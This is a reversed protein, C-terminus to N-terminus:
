PSGCLSPKDRGTLPTGISGKWDMNQKTAPTPASGRSRLKRVTDCPWRHAHHSLPQLMPKQPWTACQGTTRCTKAPTHGQGQGVRSGRTDKCAAPVVRSRAQNPGPQRLQGAKRSLQGVLRPRGAGLPQAQTVARCCASSCRCLSYCTLCSLCCYSPVFVAAHM